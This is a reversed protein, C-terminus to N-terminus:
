NWSNKISQFKSPYLRHWKRRQLELVQVALDNPIVWDGSINQPKWGARLQQEPWQQSKSQRWAPYCCTAVLLSYSHRELCKAAIFIQCPCCCRLHVDHWVWLVKKCRDSPLNSTPQFNTLLRSAFADPKWSNLASWALASKKRPVTSDLGPIAPWIQDYM